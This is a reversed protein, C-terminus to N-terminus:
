TLVPGRVERTVCAVFEGGEVVVPDVDLHGGEGALDVEPGVSADAEKRVDVATEPAAVAGRLRVSGSAGLGDPPAQLLELLLFQDSLVLLAVAKLDVGPNDGALSPPSEVSNGSLVDLVPFSVHCVDM